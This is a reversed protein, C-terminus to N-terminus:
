RCIFDEMAQIGAAHAPLVKFALGQDSVREGGIAKIRAFVSGPTSRGHHWDGDACRVCLRIATTKGIINSVSQLASASLSNGKRLVRTVFHSQMTSIAFRYTRQRCPWSHFLLGIDGESGFIVAGIRTINRRCQAAHPMIRATGIPTPLYRDGKCLILFAIDDAAIHHLRKSRIRIGCAAISRSDGERKM